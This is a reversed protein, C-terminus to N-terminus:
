LVDRVVELLQEPNTRLNIQISSQNPNGKELASWEAVSINDDLWIFDQSWDIGETKSMDWVTPKITDIIPHLHTATVRKMIERPREANGDRCHTTLWYLNHHQIALLFDELGAAPKGNQKTLEEHILTGDIDLYIDM